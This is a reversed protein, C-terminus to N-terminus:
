QITAAKKNKFLVSRSTNSVVERGRICGRGPTRGRERWLMQMPLCRSCQRHRRRSPALCMRLSRSDRCRHRAISPPPPPIPCPVDEFKQFGPLSPTRMVTTSASLPAATDEGSSKELRVCFLLIRWKPLTLLSCYRLPM